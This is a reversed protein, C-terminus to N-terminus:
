HKKPALLQDVLKESYKKKILIEIRRNKEREKYRPRYSAFGAASLRSPDLGCQAVLFHVVNTARTVSLEWNSAFRGSTVPLDDTHGEVEIDSKVTALISGLEKLYPLADPKIDARGLDFVGIDRTILVLGEDEDLVSVVNQLHRDEIISDLRKHLVSFVNKESQVNNKLTELPTPLKAAAEARKRLEELSKPPPAAPLSTPKYVIKGGLAQSISAIAMEFKTKDITSIAFMLVFFIMLISMMDGYTTLWMMDEAEEESGGGAIPPPGFSDLPSETVAPKKEQEPEVALPAEAAGGRRSKVVRALIPVKSKCNLCKISLVNPPIRSLDVSLGVGCEYCTVVTKAGTRAKTKQTIAM